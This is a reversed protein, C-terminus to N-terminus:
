LELLSAAGQYQSAWCASFMALSADTLPHAAINDFMEPSITVAHAGALAMQNLQHPTRFSAAIVETPYGGIKLETVIDRVLEAGDSQISDMRSVYPAAFHAGYEAALVAQLPAHIATATFHTGRGGLIKMTKYGEVSVPVKVILTDGVLDCLRDIEKLMTTSDVGVVQFFLPLSKSTAALLESVITEFPKRAKSIIAPNTTVGRIPFTDLLATVSKADATDIYFKM